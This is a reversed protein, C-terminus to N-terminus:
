QGHNICPQTTKYCQMKMHKEDSLMFLHMLLSACHIIMGLHKVCQLFNLTMIIPTVESKDALYAGTFTENSLHIKAKKKCSDVMQKIVHSETKIVHRAKEM